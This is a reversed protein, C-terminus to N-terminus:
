PNVKKYIRNLVAGNVAVDAVQRYGPPLQGTSRFTTTVIFDPNNSTIQLDKRLTYRALEKPYTIYVTDGPEALENIVTTVQRISHGWSWLELRGSAGKVGGVLCNYYTIQYPHYLCSVILLHAAVLVGIGPSLNRIRAPLRQRASQICENLGYGALLILGPYVMLLHRPGDYVVAGPFSFPVSSVVIWPILLRLPRQKQLRSRQWLSIAGAVALLLLSVPTTVLFYVPAYHWPASGIPYTQGLYFVSGPKPHSSFFRILEVWGSVPHNRLWPWCLYVTGLAVLAVLALSAVKLGTRHNSGGKESDFELTFIWFLLAVFLLIAHFRAAFCLGAAVGVSVTWFWHRSDIWRQVCLVLLFSWFFFPISKPNVPVNGIIRPTLMLLLTSWLACGPSWWFIAICYFLFAAGGFLLIHHMHWAETLSIGMTQQFFRSALHGIMDSLPGYFRLNGYAEIHGSGGKFQRVNMEGAHIHLPDDISLGFDPLFWIGALIVVVAIMAGPFSRAQYFPRVPDNRM